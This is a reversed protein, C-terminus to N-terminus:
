STSIFVISSYLPFKSLLKKTHATNVSRDLAKSQMGGSKNIAFSEAYPNLLSERQQM